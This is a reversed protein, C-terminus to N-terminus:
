APVSKPGRASADLLLQPIDGLDAVEDVGGRAVAEKPMGFVVCSAEDQAITHAGAEHMEFMGNAGDSGMGTLIAGIANRGVVRAVSQFLVDVSPRHRSVPAGDMVGTQYVAGSRRVVLHKNGPAIFCTGPVIAEGGEAEKVRIACVTDLREAFARTFVEPMHQVVVIGPANAPMSTLVRELAVTGGTSAGIAIVSNTTRTMSLKKSSKPPLRKQVNVSAAAFIAQKLSGIVDEVSYASGPKCLVDVAGADFAELALEGGRPTLSSLMVVPIPHHEMLKKLFTIGDMRPMEVDLTLVDPNLTAILDRAVYPDPAAGVVEIGPVANLQKTLLSRVVASDDVVLVRISM